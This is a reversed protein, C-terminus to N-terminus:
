SKVKRYEVSPVHEISARSILELINVTNSIVLPYTFTPEGSVDGVM